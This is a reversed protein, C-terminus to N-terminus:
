KETLTNLCYNFLLNVMNHIFLINGSTNKCIPKILLQNSENFISLVDLGVYMIQIKRDRSHICLLNNSIIDM